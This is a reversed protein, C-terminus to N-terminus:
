QDTATGDNTVSWGGDVALVQGTVFKSEDSLFYIAAGELDSPQGARGGDLPQKSEVFARIAPDQIARQSMPTDVLGPALVNFRINQKAYYSAAARTMSIAAGKAAGYGHTAFYHASPSFALVSSVNLISGGQGIELFKRVAARNAYFMSTLNQRITFEWGQDTIEHLAGDGMKRGSAGAVHYLAHFGDFRDIATQIASQAVGPDAADGGIVSGVDGLEASVAAVHEDDRGVVVVRAGERMFARVAALGIGTTGGVVVIVRNGLRAM